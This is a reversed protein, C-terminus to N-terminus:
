TGWQQSQVRYGWGADQLKDQVRYNLYGITPEAGQLGVRCGTVQGAGQLERVGKSARRGTVGGQVRYSERCM